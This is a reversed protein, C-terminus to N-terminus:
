YGCGGCIGLLPEGQEVRSFDRPNGYVSCSRCKATVCLTGPVITMNIRLAGYCADCVRVREGSSLRCTKIWRDGGGCAFCTVKGGPDGRM